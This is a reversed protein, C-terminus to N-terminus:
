SRTTAAFVGDPFRALYRQLSPIDNSSRVSEWLAIDAPMTPEGTLYVRRTLGNSEWPQQSGGTSAIVVEKVNQFLNLHDLGQRGLEKVLAAAYPGSTAGRDSATRGPASLLSCFLGAAVKNDMSSAIDYGQDVDDLSYLEIM